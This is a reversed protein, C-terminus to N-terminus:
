YILAATTSIIMLKNILKVDKIGSGRTRYAYVFWYVVITIALLTPITINDIQQIAKDSPM